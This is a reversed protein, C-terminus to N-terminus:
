FKQWGADTLLRWCERADEKRSVTRTVKEGYLTREVRTVVVTGDEQPSFEWRFGQGIPSNAPMVLCFTTPKHCM